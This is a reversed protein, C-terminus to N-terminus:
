IGALGFWRRPQLRGEPLCEGLGLFEGAPGEIVVWPAEAPADVARGLHMMEAQVASVKVSPWDMVASRAPLLHADLTALTPASELEALTVMSVPERAGFLGVALRRLGSLHAVQGFRKAWDEALTRIYTGKSCVVDLLAHRGDFSRVQLDHITVERPERAIELGERALEFLRVGDRKLASYMPPVQQIVGTCAAAATELETLQVHDPNSRAIVEGESDGTQTAEGLRVEALYRKRADLLHSTLKTAQGFCIPLLGTALPDLTGTHGAKEANFLRRVQMMADNSSVGSPKDLLLVGHIDRRLQRRPKSM